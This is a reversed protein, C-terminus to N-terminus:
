TLRKLILNAEKEDILIFQHYAKEYCYVDAHAIDFWLGHITLQKKEVRERIFPYTCIHEMQELVNVQSLQNHESLAPNIILGERVKKLSNEGHKLWSALHPCCQTDVGEILAQM